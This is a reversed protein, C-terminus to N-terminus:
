PKWNVLPTQSQALWRVHGDFYAYNSGNLHRFAMNEGTGAANRQLVNTEYLEVTNAADSIDVERVASLNLNFAYGYRAGKPISPCNFIAERKCYPLLADIWKDKVPPLTEDWDETYQKVALVIKKLNSQCQSRKFNEDQPLDSLIAGTLKYVAKAKAVGKLNNWKAYTEVLDVRWGGNEKVLLVPLSVRTEGVIMVTNKDNKSRVKIKYQPTKWQESMLSVFHGTDEGLESRSKRSVSAHLFNYAAMNDNMAEAFKLAAEERTLQPPPSPEPPPTASNFMYDEFPEVESQGDQARLSGVQWLLVGGLLVLGLGFELRKRFRTIM